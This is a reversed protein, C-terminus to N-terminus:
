KPLESILVKRSKEDYGYVPLHSFREPVPGWGKEPISFVAKKTGAPPEKRVYLLWLEGKFPNPTGRRTAIVIYEDLVM